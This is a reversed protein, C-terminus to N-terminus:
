RRNAPEGVLGIREVDEIIREVLRPDCLLALATTREAESMAAPAPTSAEAAKSREDILRELKLLLRGWDHQIVSEEATLEVAACKAFAARQKAQYLDLTDVHLGQPDADGQVSVM